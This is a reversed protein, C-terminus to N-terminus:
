DAKRTTRLDDHTASHPLSEAYVHGKDDGTERDRTEWDRGHLLDLTRTGEDAERFGSPFPPNRM